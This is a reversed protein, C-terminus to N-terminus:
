KPIQYHNMIIKEFFRNSVIKKVNKTIKQMFAGVTYRLKPKKTKLIKLILKAIENPENGELVSENMQQSVHNAYKYYASNKHICIKRSQHINTKYDGPEILVCKIGFQKLEMSMSETLGEVAFKSASYVGQFPLGFLGGLSSINIIYGSKQERMYPIVQQSVELLGFFNVEFVEKTMEQSIEELAAICGIGANNILVDITTNKNIIQDIAKKITESDSVDLYLWKLNATDQKDIINRGTAYVYYNNRSLYLAISNGIGLTAGTILITKM